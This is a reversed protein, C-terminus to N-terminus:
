GNGSQREKDALLLELRDVEHAIGVDDGTDYQRWLLLALMIDEADSFLNLGNEIITHSM